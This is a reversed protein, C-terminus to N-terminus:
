FNTTKSHSRKLALLIVYWLSTPRMSLTTSQRSFNFLTLVFCTRKSYITRKTYKDCQENERYTCPNEPYLAAIRALYHRLQEGIVPDLDAIPNFTENKTEKNSPSPLAIIEKVEDIVHCDEPKLILDSVSRSRSRQTTAGRRVVIEKILGLLVESIWEVLRSNKSTIELPMGFDNSGVATETLELMGDSFDTSDIISDDGNSSGTTKKAMELFYTQMLGKGKANVMDTRPKVWSIKGAAILLDATDQSIQISDPFGTSEM